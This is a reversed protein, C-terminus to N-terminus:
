RVRMVAVTAHRTTGSEVEVVLGAGTTTYAEGADTRARRGPGSGAVLRAVEAAVPATLAQSLMRRGDPLRVAARNPRSVPGVYGIVEADVTESHRIKKWIRTPRYTSSAAKAVVGEIGQAPLHEYWALATDIDDTAPTPQIPPPVDALVDLLTARREVYPRGRLDVGDAMLCDWAVYNAPYKYQAALASARRLTSNGRSQAASFSLRGDVWVVAEGDLVTGPLLAAQGAVALDMWASTVTRGSRTHCRVTEETRWMILRHGDNELSRATEHSVPTRRNLASMPSAGSLYPRIPRVGGISGISARERSRSGVRPANGPPTIMSHFTSPYRTM